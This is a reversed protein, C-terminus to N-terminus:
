TAAMIPVIGDVNVYIDDGRLEVPYEALCSAAPNIGKGTQCDFTWLHARCTIVGDEFTGESLLIQQHPCIAQYVKVEGGELVAVLVETGDSTEFTEMDGEWLDELSAVKEFGMM